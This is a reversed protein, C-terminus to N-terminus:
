ERKKGVQRVRDRGGKEIKEEEEERIKKKVYSERGGNRERSKLREKETVTLNNLIYTLQDDLTNCSRAVAM